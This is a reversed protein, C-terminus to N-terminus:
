KGYLLAENLLSWAEEFNGIDNLQSIRMSYSQAVRVPLRPNGYELARGGTVSGPFGPAFPEQSRSLAGMICYRERHPKNVFMVTCNVSVPTPYQERIADVPSEM